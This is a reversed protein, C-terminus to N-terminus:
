QIREKWNVRQTRLAPILMLVMLWCVGGWAAWVVFIGWPADWGFQRCLVRSLDSLLPLTCLFLVWGLFAILTVMRHLRCREIVEARRAQALHTIRAMRSPDLITEPMRHIARAMKQLEDLKRACEPCQKIHAQVASEGARDLGGSVLDLLKETMEEHTTM